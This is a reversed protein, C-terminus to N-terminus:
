SFEIQFLTSNSLGLLSDLPIKELVGGAHKPPCTVGIVQGVLGPVAPVDTALSAAVELPSAVTDAFKQLPIIPVTPLWIRASLLANLDAVADTV